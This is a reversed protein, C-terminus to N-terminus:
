ENPTVEEEEYYERYKIIVTKQAEIYNRIRAMMIALDEYGEDTLGFLVKDYGDEEMKAFVEEANEPTIIIWKPTDTRVPEPDPLNLPARQVEETIIEIPEVDPGGFLGFSACGSLLLLSTTLTLSKLVNM